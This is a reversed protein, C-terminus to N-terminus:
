HMIDREMRFDDLRVDVSGHADVFDQDVPWISDLYKSDDEEIRIEIECELSRNKLEQMLKVAVMM